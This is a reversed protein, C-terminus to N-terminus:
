SDFNNKWCWRKRICNNINWEYLNWKIVKLYNELDKVIAM